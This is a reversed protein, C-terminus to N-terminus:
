LVRYIEDDGVKISSTSSFLRYKLSERLILRFFIAVPIFFALYTPWSNRLVSSITPYARIPQHERNLIVKVESYGDLAVKRAFSQSRVALKFNKKSRETFAKFINYASSIFTKTADFSYTSAKEANYPDTQELFVTGFITVSNAEPTFTVPVRILDTFQLGKITNSTYNLFLYLFESVSATQATKSYVKLTIVIDDSATKISNYSLEYSPGPNTAGALKLTKFTSVQQDQQAGGLFYLNGTFKLESDEDILEFNGRWINKQYNSLIFPIIFVCLYIVVCFLTTTSCLPSYYTRRFPESALTIPM